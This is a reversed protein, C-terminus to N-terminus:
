YRKGVCGWAAVVRNAKESCKMFIFDYLIIINDPQKWKMYHKQPEDKVYCVVISENENTLLIGNYLNIANKRDM